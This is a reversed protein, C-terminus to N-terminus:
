GRPAARSSHRQLSTRFNGGRHPRSPCRSFTGAHAFCRWLFAPECWRASLSKGLQHFSPPCCRLSCGSLLLMRNLDSQNEWGATPQANQGRQWSCRLCSHCCCTFPHSVERLRDCQRIRETRCAVSSQIAAC